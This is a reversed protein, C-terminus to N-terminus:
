VILFSSNAWLSMLFGQALAGTITLAHDLSPRSRTFHAMVVYLPFIVVSYRVLSSYPPGYALAFLVSLLAFSGYAVGLRRLFAVTVVLVGFMYWANFRNFIDGATMETWLAGLPNQLQHGWATAQIRTFALPDGTLQYNVWM